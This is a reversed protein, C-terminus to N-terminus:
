FDREPGIEGPILKTLAFRYRCRRPARRFRRHTRGGQPSFDLPPAVRRYVAGPKKIIARPAGRYLITLDTVREQRSWDRWRESERAASETIKTGTSGVCPRHPVQVERSALSPHGLLSSQIRKDDR